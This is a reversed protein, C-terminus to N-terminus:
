HYGRHYVSNRVRLLKKFSEDTIGMHEIPDLVPLGDPFRKKVEGLAKRVQEKQDLSKLGEPLFIRINSFSDLCTLMVPCVAMVSKEGPRPRCMGSPIQQDIKARGLQDDAVELLVDVIYSKQPPIPEPDNRASHRQMFSVVAGWGYDVDEHKVRILRGPQLFSLCYSPHSTIMHMDKTYSKIQERLNYYEEVTSEDPISM